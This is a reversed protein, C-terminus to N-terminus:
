YSWFIWVNDDSFLGSNGDATSSRPDTTPEPLTVNYVMEHTRRVLSSSAIFQKLKETLTNDSDEEYSASTGFIFSPQIILVVAVISLIISVVKVATIREKLIIRALITITGLLALRLLAGAVGM